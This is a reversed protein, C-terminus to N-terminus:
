MQHNQQKCEEEKAERLREEIRKLMEYGNLERSGEGNEYVSTGRVVEIARKWTGNETRRIIRELAHLKEEAM